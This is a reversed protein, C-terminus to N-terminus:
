VTQILDWRNGHLDQFVAVVGYPECRPKELFKVGNELFKAHDRIFDDTELFLFVRGGSQDGVAREQRDSVARALLLGGGGGSPTVVVWRKGEELPTDETLHFGLKGVYFDIAADYDDVLVATMSLRSSAM